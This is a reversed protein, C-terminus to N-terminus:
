TPPDPFPRNCTHCAGAMVVLLRQLLRLAAYLTLGAGPSKPGPAAPHQLSARARHPHRPPAM